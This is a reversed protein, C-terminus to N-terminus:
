LVVLLGWGVMLSIGGVPTAPGLIKRVPNGADTVVLGYISGSFLAIGTAFAWGARHFAPGRSAALLIALSHLLQYHTATSWSSIKSAPVDYKELSHAGFAGLAVSTLGSLAGINWLLTSPPPPM